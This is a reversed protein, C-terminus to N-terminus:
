AREHRLALARRWYSAAAVVGMVATAGIWVNELREHLLAFSVAGFQLVTALKGALNASPKKARARRALPSLAYWLVLPLEGIERTSLLAVEFISLHGTAVLTIAITLVFLKDTIPDLAAGTPTVQRLRRALYGDLVDSLAALVLVGFAALPMRVAFPFCIALVVRCLSVLGPPQFADSLRYHGHLPDQTM